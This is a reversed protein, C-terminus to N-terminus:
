ESLYHDYLEQLIDLQEYGLYTEVWQALKYFNKDDTAKLMKPRVPAGTTKITRLLTKAESHKPDNKDQKTQELWAHFGM